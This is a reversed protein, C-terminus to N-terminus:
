PKICLGEQVSCKSGAYTTCDDDKKCPEGIEYIPKGNINGPKSYLCVTVSSLWNGKGCRANVGCGFRTTEGWALQTFDNAGNNIYDKNFTYKENNFWYWALESWWNALSSNFTVMTPVSGMSISKTEGSYSSYWISCQQAMAQAKNELDCDYQLKYMNKAKKATKGRYSVKGLALESRRHNIQEAMSKRDEDTIAKSECRTKASVIPFVSFYFFIQVE